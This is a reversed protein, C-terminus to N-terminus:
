GMDREDRFGKYSPFRPKDYGGVAFHQYKIFSGIFFSRNAWIDLREANTFGTGIEFVVGTILDRVELAGLKGNGIMNDKHGSRETLGMGNIVAANTNHLQETFGLIEAESDVFRKFKLLWGQNFTSRGFKYKGTLSRIMMGEYGATVFKEEKACAEEVSHVVYHPVPEIRLPYLDSEVSRSRASEYRDFFDAAPDTCDDFVFFTVLPTGKQTMVASVSKRYCMGDAPHGMVLEGDLGLFERSGFIGQLHKNPILKMTNSLLRPVAHTDYRTVARIGDLKPSVMVPYTLQELEYKKDYAKMPRFPKGAVVLSLTPHDIM